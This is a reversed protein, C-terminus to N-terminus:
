DKIGLMKVIPNHARSDSFCKGYLMKQWGKNTEDDSAVSVVVVAGMNSNKIFLLGDCRV